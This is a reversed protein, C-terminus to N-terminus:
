SNLSFLAPRDRVVTEFIAITQSLHARMAAGAAAENRAEISQWVANHENFIALLRSKPPALLRRVREAHARLGKLIDSSQTLRLGSVITQHFDVDLAYFGTSDEAEAAAHQYRINRALAERAEQPLAVAAQAAIDAELARRIMLFERADQASIKSVFSGHQPEIVVLREFALRNIATTVPFRSVNLEDCLHAKDILTGPELTGALIADRLHHYVHEAKSLRQAPYADAGSRGTPVSPPSNIKNGTVM